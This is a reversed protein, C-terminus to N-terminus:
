HPSFNIYLCSLCSMISSSLEWVMLKLVHQNSLFVYEKCSFSLFSLYTRNCQYSYSFYQIEMDRQSPSVLWSILYIILTPWKGESFLKNVLYATQPQGCSGM